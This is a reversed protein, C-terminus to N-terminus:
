ETVQAIVRQYRTLQLTGADTVELIIHIIKGSPRTAPGTGGGDFKNVYVPM